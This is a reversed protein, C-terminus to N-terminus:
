FSIRGTVTMQRCYANMKVCSEVVGESRELMESDEEFRQLTLEQEREHLRIYHVTKWGTLAGRKSVYEELRGASFQCASLCKDPPRKLRRTLFRIIM